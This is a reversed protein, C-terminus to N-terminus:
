RHFPVPSLEKLGVLRHYLPDKVSVKRLISFERRLWGGGLMPSPLPFPPPVSPSRVTDPPHSGCTYRKSWRDARTKRLFSLVLRMEPMLVPPSAVRGGIHTYALNEGLVGIFTPYDWRAM